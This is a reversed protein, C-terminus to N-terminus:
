PLAVQRRALLVMGLIGSLLLWASAPLPVAAIDATGFALLGTPNLYPPDHAPVADNTVMATLISSLGTFTGTLSRPAGGAASYCDGNNAVGTCTTAGSLTGGTISWTVRDDAAYNLSFTGSGGVLSGINLTYTYLGANANTGSSASPGVWVGNANNAIYSGPRPNEAVVPSSNVLWSAVGTGIQVPAAFTMSSVGSLLIAATALRLSQM